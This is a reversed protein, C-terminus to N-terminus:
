YPQVTKCIPRLECPPHAMSERGAVAMHKDRFSPRTAFARSGLCVKDGIRPLLLFELMRWAFM